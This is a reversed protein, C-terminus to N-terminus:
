AAALLSEATDGTEAARWTAYLAHRVLTGDQDARAFETATKLRTQNAKGTHLLHAYDQVGFGRAFEQYVGARFDGHREVGLGKLYIRETPTLGKWVHVPLGAPVLYNSATRVTDRLSADFTCPRPGTQRNARAATGRRCDSAITAPTRPRHTIPWTEIHRAEGVPSPSRRRCPHRGNQGGTDAMQTSESRVGGM